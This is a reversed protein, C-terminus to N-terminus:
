HVCAEATQAPNKPAASRRDFVVDNSLPRDLAKGRVYSSLDKVLADFVAVVPESSSAASQSVTILVPEQLQHKIINADLRHSVFTTAVVIYSGAARSARQLELADSLRDVQADTMWEAGCNDCTEFELDAPIVYGSQGRYTTFRGAGRSLRLTFGCDGCTSM